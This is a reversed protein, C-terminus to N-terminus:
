KKHAYLYVECMTVDVGADYHASNSYSGSAACKQKGNVGYKLYVWPGQTQHNASQFYVGRNKLGVTWPDEVVPLRTNPLSMVKALEASVATNVSRMEDVDISPACAGAAFGSEAPFDDIKGVCGEQASSATTELLPYHGELAYYAEFGKAVTNAVSAAAAASARQNIGNYAVVSIAALIAIVVIVILLEVITFGKRDTNM